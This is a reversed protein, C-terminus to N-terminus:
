ENRESQRLQRNILVHRLVPVYPIADFDDLTRGAAQVEDRGPVTVAGVMVLVGEEKEEAEPERIEVFRWLAREQGVLTMGLICIPHTTM